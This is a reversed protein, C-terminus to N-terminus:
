LVQMLKASIVVMLVLLGLARRFYNVGYLLELVAWVVLAGFSAWGFITHAPESIVFRALVLFLAWVILPINPVQFLM